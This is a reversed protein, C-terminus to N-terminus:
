GSCNPHEEGEPYGPVALACRWPRPKSRVQRHHVQQRQYAYIMTQWLSLYLVGSGAHTVVYTASSATSRHLSFTLLICQCPLLLLHSLSWLGYQYRSRSQLPSPVNSIYHGSLTTLIYAKLGKHPSHAGVPEDSRPRRDYLKKQM